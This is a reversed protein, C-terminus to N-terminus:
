RLQFRAVTEVHFTQPFMDVPVAYDLDYGVEGLLRADRALSAPDCAVYAITRPPSRTISAVGDAGLGSRPPDCVVVTWEGRSFGGDVTSAVVEVEIGATARNHVLDDVAM